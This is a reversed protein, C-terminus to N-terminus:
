LLISYESISFIINCMRAENLDLMIKCYSLLWHWVHSSLLFCALTHFDGGYILCQLLSVHEGQTHFYQEVRQRQTKLITMEKWTRAPSESDNHLIKCCCGNLTVIKLESLWIYGSVALHLLLKWCPSLKADSCILVEFCQHDEGQIVEPSSKQM